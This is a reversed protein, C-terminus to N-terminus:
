LIFQYVRVARQGTAYLGHEPPLPETGIMVGGARECTRASAINEPDCTVILRDMGQRRALARLLGLARAAYGHGRWPRHILYGANGDLRTRANEGMRLDCRGIAGAGDLCIDFYFAPLVGDEPRAPCVGTLRLFLEGDRLGCVAMDVGM